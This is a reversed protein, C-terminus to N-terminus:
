HRFSLRLEEGNFAVGIAPADPKSRGLAVSVAGGIAVALTAAGLVAPVAYIAYYRTRASEYDDVADAYGTHGRGLAAASQAQNWADVGLAIPIAFSVATLGAGALVWGTPFTPAEIPQPAVVPPRIEPPRPPPALDAARVVLEASAGREITADYRHRQEGSIAIVEHPGPALYAELPLAQHPAGDLSIVAGPIPADVVVRLVGLSAKLATARDVADQRREEIQPPVAGPLQGVRRVFRDYADVARAADGIAEHALGLNYLARWAREPEREVLPAWLEIAGRPDDADFRALGEGFVRGLEDDTPPAASAEEYECVTAVSVAVLLVGFL